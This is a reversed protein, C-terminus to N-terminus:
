RSHVCLGHQGCPRTWSAASGGRRAVQGSAQRRGKSQRHRASEAQWVPSRMRPGARTETQLACAAAFQGRIGVLGRESERSDYLPAATRIARLWMGQKTFHGGSFSQINQATTNGRSAEEGATSGGHQHYVVALLDVVTCATVISGAHDRGHRPAAEVALLKVRHSVGGRARGHRASEAQWTLSRM